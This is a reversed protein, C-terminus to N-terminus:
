HLAPQWIATSPYFSSWAYWWSRVFHPSDLREGELEGEQCVGDPSWRSGTESDRLTDGESVFSLRRGKLIRRFAQVKGTRLDSTILIAWGGVVTQISGKEFLDEIKFFCAKGQVALGLGREYPPLRDDLRAVKLLWDLGMSSKEMSTCFSRCEELPAVPALVRVAPLERAEIWRMRQLDGLCRLEQGRRTGEYCEGTLQIWRSGSAHDGIILTGNYLARLWNFTLVEGGVERSYLLACESLQCYSVLVPQGDITENVVHHPSLIIRPYVFTAERGRVVFVEDAAHLMEDAREVPLYRPDLFGGSELAFEPHGVVRSPDVPARGRDIQQPHNETVPAGPIAPARPECSLGTVLFVPLLWSKGSTLVRLM